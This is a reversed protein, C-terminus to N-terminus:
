VDPYFLLVVVAIKGLPQKEVRMERLVCVSVCVYVYFIYIYIFHKASLM